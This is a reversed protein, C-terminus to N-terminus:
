GRYPVEISLFSHSSTPVNLRVGTPAQLGAPSNLNVPAASADKMSSAPSNIKALFDSILQRQEQMRKTTFAHGCTTCHQQDTSLPDLPESPVAGCQPCSVDALADAVEVRFLSPLSSARSQVLAQLKALGDVQLAALARAISTLQARAEARELLACGESLVERLLTSAVAQVEDLHHFRSLKQILFLRLDVGSRCHPACQAMLAYSMYPSAGRCVVDLIGKSLEELEQQTCLSPWQRHSRCLAQFLRWSARWHVYLTDTSPDRVSRIISFYSLYPAPHLVSKAISRFPHSVSDLLAEGVYSRMIHYALLPPAQGTSTGGGNSLLRSTADPSLAWEAPFETVLRYTAESDRLRRSSIAALMANWTRYSVDQPKMERFLTNATSASAATGIDLLTCCLANRVRSSAMIWSCRQINWALLPVVREADARKAAAEMLQLATQCSPTVHLSLQFFLEDPPPSDPHSILQTSVVGGHEVAANFLYPYPFRLCTRAASCPGTFLSM